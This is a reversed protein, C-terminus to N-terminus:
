PKPNLQHQRMPKTPTPSTASPLARVEYHVHQSPRLLLYAGQPICCNLVELRKWLERNLLLVRRVPDNAVAHPLGRRQRLLHRSIEVLEELLKHQQTVQRLASVAGWAARVEFM